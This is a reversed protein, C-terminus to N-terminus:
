WRTSLSFMSLSNVIIMQNSGSSFSASPVPNRQFNNLKPSLKNAKTKAPSCSKLVTKMSMKTKAGMAAFLSRLMFSGKKEPSNLKM